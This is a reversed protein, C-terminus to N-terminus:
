ADVREFIETVVGNMLPRQPRNVGVANRLKGM